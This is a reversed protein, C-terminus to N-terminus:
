TGPVLGGVLGAMQMQQGRPLSENRTMNMYGVAEDRMRRSDRKTGDNNNGNNNNNGYGNSNSNGNGYSNSNGNGYSNSNSDGNRNSNTARKSRRNGSAPYLSAVPTDSRVNPDANPGVTAEGPRSTAGAGHRATSATVRDSYRTTRTSRTEGRQTYYDDDDNEGYGYRNTTGGRRRDTASTPNTVVQTVPEVVNASYDTVPALFAVCALIVLLLSLTGFVLAHQCRTTTNM